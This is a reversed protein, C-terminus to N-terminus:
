IMDDSEPTPLKGFVKKFNKLVSDGLHGVLTVWALTVLATSLSTSYEGLLDGVMLPVLFHLAAYGLVGPIVMSMYFDTLHAFSFEKRKIAGAVALMIDLMILACITKIRPDAAFQTAWMELWVEM